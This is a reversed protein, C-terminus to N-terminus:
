NNTQSLQGIIDVYKVAINEWSYYKMVYRRAKVGFQKRNEDNELFFAIMKKYQAVNREQVLVGTVGNNIADKLGEIESAVVPLGYSAAELVVLGFGEIDGPVKINPQIFLDATSYLIEKEKDSVAGIYFVRNQLGNKKIITIINSKEAGDGAIIYIYSDCSKDVVEEIFWAVGKRKVLRGLTLLVKGHIERGILKELDKKSYTPLPKKISVGNPVFILKSRPIGRLVAQNIIENGVAILKDVKRLFINVWLKQYIINPYTLDLGHVICVVPKQSFFKIIWGIIGLAGDGLLVIDYKHLISFLKMLAFIGFIPLMKKGKTNIILGVNNEKSLSKSTEYNQREIGGIVPPYARSIFLINLRQMTTLKGNLINILSPSTSILHKLAM